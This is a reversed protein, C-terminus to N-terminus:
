HFLFPPVYLKVRLVLDVRAMLKLSHLSDSIWLSVSRRLGYLEPDHLMYNDPEAGAKRKRQRPSDLSSSRADRVSDVNGNPPTAMAYDPDDSGLADEDHSSEVDSEQAGDDVGAEYQDSNSFSTPAIPIDMAESLDSESDTAMAGNAISKPSPPSLHDKSYPNNSTTSPTPQYM